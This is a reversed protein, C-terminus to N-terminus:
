QRTGSGSTDLGRKRCEDLLERTKTPDLLVVGVPQRCQAYTAPDVQLVSYVPHMDLALSAAADFAMTCNTWVTVLILSGFANALVAFLFGAATLDIAVDAAQRLRPGTWAGLVGRTRAPFSYSLLGIVGPLRM